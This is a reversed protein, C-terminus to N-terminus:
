STTIASHTSSDHETARLTFTRQGEDVFPALVSGNLNGQFDAQPPEGIADAKIDDVFLDVLAFPVFNHGAVMVSERQAETAVVYCPKLPDLAPPTQAFAPAAVLVTLAAALLTTRVLM